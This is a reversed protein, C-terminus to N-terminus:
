QSPQPGLVDDVAVVVDPLAVLEITEGRGARRQRRYGQADPDSFVAVVDGALDVVWTEPIGAAGYLPAKRDRDYALTTDAMEVLLYVDAPGPHAAAYRELPPVLLAVDPQLESRENVAVPDQVSIVARDGVFQYFLRTLQMVCFAHRVGIPAMEVVDGEVLELRADEDFFHMQHWEDVTFAHRAATHAM